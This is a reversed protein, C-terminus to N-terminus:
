STLLTSYQITNYQLIYHVHAKMFMGTNCACALRRPTSHQACQPALDVTRQCCRRKKAFRWCMMSVDVIHRVVPLFSSLAIRAIFAIFAICAIVCGATAGASGRLITGPEMALLLGGLTERATAFEAPAAAARGPYGSLAFM